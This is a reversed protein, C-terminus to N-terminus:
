FKGRVRFNNKGANIIKYGRLGIYRMVEDILEPAREQHPDGKVLYVLELPLNTPKELPLGFEEFDFEYDTGPLRHFIYDNAQEAIDEALALAERFKRRIDSVTSAQKLLPVLEKRLEPKEKALKAVQRRLKSM